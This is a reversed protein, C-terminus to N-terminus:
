LVLSLLVEVHKSGGTQTIAGDETPLLSPEECPAECCKVHCHGSCHLVGGAMICGLLCVPEVLLGTGGLAKVDGAAM